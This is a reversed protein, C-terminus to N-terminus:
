DLGLNRIQDDLDNAAARLMPSTVAIEFSPDPPDWAIGPAWPPRCMSDLRVRLRIGSPVTGIAQFALNPEEFYIERHTARGDAL